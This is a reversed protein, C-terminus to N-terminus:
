SAPAHDPVARATVACRRIRTMKLVHRSKVRAIARAVILWEKVSCRCALFSGSRHVGRQFDKRQGDGGGERHQAAALLLFRRLGGLLTLMLYGVAAIMAIAGVYGAEFIWQLLVNHLAGLDWLVENQGPAILLNNFHRFTGLGFGTWPLEALQGLYISVIERRNALAGDVGSLRAATVGSSMVLVAFCLIALGTAAGILVLARRNRFEGWVMTFTSALLGV